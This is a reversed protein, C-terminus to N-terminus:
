YLLASALVYAFLGFLAALLGCFMFITQDVRRSLTMGTAAICGVTGSLANCVKLRTSIALPVSSQVVLLSNLQIFLCVSPRHHITTGNSKDDSYYGRFYNSCVPHTATRARATFLRTLTFYHSHLASTRQWQREQGGARLPLWQHHHTLFGRVVVNTTFFVFIFLIAHNLTIFPCLSSILM